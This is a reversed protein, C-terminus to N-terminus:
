LVDLSDVVECKSTRCYKNYTGDCVVLPFLGKESHKSKKTKRKLLDKREKFRWTRPNIELNRELCLSHFFNWNCLGGQKYYCLDDHM